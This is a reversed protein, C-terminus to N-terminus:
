LIDKNECVLIEKIVNNTMKNNCLNLLAIEGEGCIFDASSVKLTSFLSSTPHIGGIYVKYNKRKVNKSIVFRNLSRNKQIERWSM